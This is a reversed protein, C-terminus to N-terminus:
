DKRRSTGSRYFWDEIAAEEFLHIPVAKNCGPRDGSQVSDMVYQRAGSWVMKEPHQDLMGPDNAMNDALAVHGAQAPLAFGSLEILIPLVPLPQGYYNLNM